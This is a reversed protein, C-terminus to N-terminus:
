RRKKKHTKRMEIKGYTQRERPDNYYSGNLEDGNISLDANGYHRSLTKGNMDGKNEYHYLIFTDDCECQLNADMNYSCSSETKLKICICLLTQKIEITAPIEKQFNDYSSKLCGKYTGAIYNINCLRFVLRRFLWGVVDALLGSSIPLGGRFLQWRINWEPNDITILDLVFYDFIFYIIVSIALIIGIVSFRKESTVSYHKM